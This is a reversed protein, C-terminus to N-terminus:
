TKFTRMDLINECYNEYEEKRNSCVIVLRKRDQEKMINNYWDIGHEDLNTMPEDLLLTATDSLIAIGISLRQKMGSSLFRIQKHAEKDLGVASLIDLAKYGNLFPKFKEQFQVAEMLTFEEIFEMYPASLSLYRFVEEVEVKNNHFSFDIKGTSPTLNGSILRLLTSKGSGNPGTIAYTGGANFEYDFNKFVWIHNFHVGVRSFTIKM